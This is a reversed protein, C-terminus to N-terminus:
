NIDLNPKSNVKYPNDPLCNSSHFCKKNNDLKAIWDDVSVASSIFESLEPEELEKKGCICCTIYAEILTEDSVVIVADQYVSRCIKLQRERLAQALESKIM